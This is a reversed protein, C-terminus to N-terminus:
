LDMTEQQIEVKYSPNDYAASTAKRHNAATIPAKNHGHKRMLILSLIIVAAIALTALISVAVLPGYYDSSEVLPTAELKGQLSDSAPVVGAKTTFDKVNSKKIKGNTLYAELWLHYRTNPKLGTILTNPPSDRKAVKFSSFDEREGESQYIARFINIYKDEPYPVGSWTLEVTSTKVHHVDVVLDFSYPDNEIATTIEINEHARLETTQDPFPIFYIGVQYLTDPKLDEITYSTVARHILPTASFVQAHPEKYRIQVGDIFQLEFENFTRWVLKVWTANLEAVRLEPDVPIEPPYLTASTTKPLTKVTLIDSVPSNQLDRLVISIKIKYTTNPELNGLEFELEPTAILDDPPALVQQEWTSPDSNKRDSTYRLEVRGHLGVLVSPVSFILRVSSDDIAELTHVKIENPDQTGPHQPFGHIPLTNTFGPRTSNNPLGLPVAAHSSHQTLLSEQYPPPPFPGQYQNPNRNRLHALIEEVRQSPSTPINPSHIHITGRGPPASNQNQATQPQINGGNPLKDPNQYLYVEEPTLFHGPPHPHQANLQPNPQVYQIIEEPHFNSPIQGGKPLHPALNHLHTLIEQPLRQPNQGHYKDVPKKKNYRPPPPQVNPDYPIQFHQVHFMDPAPQGNHPIQQPPFGQDHIYYVQNPNIPHGGNQHLISPPVKEGEYQFEHDNEQGPPTLGHKPDNDNTKQTFGTNNISQHYLESKSPQFLGPFENGQDENFNQHIPNSVQNPIVGPKSKDYKSPKALPPSLFPFHTFIGENTNPLDDEFKSDPVHTEKGKHGSINTAPSESIHVDPIESPPLNFPALIDVLPNEKHSKVKTSTESKQKTPGKRTEEELHQPSFPGPFYDKKNNTQNKYNKNKLPQTTNLNPNFPGLLLTSSTTTENITKHNTDDTMVTKTPRMDLQIGSHPPCMWFLCCEDDPQHSLIAEKSDCPLTPPPTAPVPPCAAHCTINGMECYCRQECGSLKSPIDAWNPFTEGMYICSGNDKCKVTDPCCKPPVPVFDAPQTEWSLCHPDLVDLGFHTPCDISACEVGSKGCVCYAACGDHFEEGRTYNKGKYECMNGTLKSAPLTAQMVNSLTAGMRVRFSYTKGAQLEGVLLGKGTAPSWISGDLSTEVEAMSSNVPQALEIMVASSNLPTIAVLRLSVPEDSDDPKSADHGDLSVDCLVLTCCPDKTDPLTLCKESKTNNVAPCRPKCSVFGGEECSCVAECADNFTDGKQYTENKYVCAGNPKDQAQHACVLQVCCHDAQPKEQCLPDTNTGRRVLPPPCQDCSTDEDDMTVDDLPPLGPASTSNLSVARGEKETNPPEPPPHPPTTTTESTSNTSVNDTATSATSTSTLVTTTEQALVCSVSVLVLLIM